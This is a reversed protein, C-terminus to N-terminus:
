ISADKSYDGFHKIIKEEFGLTTITEVIYNDKEVYILSDYDNLMNRIEVHKLVLSPIKLVEKSITDFQKQVFDDNIHMTEVKRFSDDYTFAYM